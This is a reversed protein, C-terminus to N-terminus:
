SIILRKVVYDEGSVIKVLYIGSPLSHINLKEILSEAQHIMVLKGTIDTLIIKTGNEPLSSFKLSVKENAPNPYMNIEISDFEEISDFKEELLIFVSSKIQYVLEGIFDDVQVPLVEGISASIGKLEISHGEMFGNQLGDYSASAVISVIDDDMHAKSLRVAGVCLDGDFAAIEDGIQFNAEHLGTININMHNSGNGNYVVKFFETQPEDSALIGSKEYSESIQLVCSRKVQVMYGEGSEFNGITNTWGSRFFWNWEEIANGAAGQVKILNGDDILPQVVDMANSFGNYPFSICNWGEKLPIDLPLDVPTGNIELSCNSSVQIKYGETEQMEGINNTWNTSKLESNYTNGNEDEVIILQGNEQLSEIVSAMNLNTPNLYSSVINWGEELAITQTQLAETSAPLQEV